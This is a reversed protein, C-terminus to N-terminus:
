FQCQLDRMTVCVRSVRSMDSSLSPPPPSEGLTDQQQLEANNIATDCTFRAAGSLSAFMVACVHNKVFWHFSDGVMVVLGAFGPLPQYLINCPSLGLRRTAGGLFVFSM